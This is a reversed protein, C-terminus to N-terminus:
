SVRMGIAYPLKCIFLPLMHAHDQITASLAAIDAVDDSMIPWGDIVGITCRTNLRSTPINNLSGFNKEMLVKRTVGGNILPPTTITNGNFSITIYVILHRGELLFEEVSSARVLFTAISVQSRQAPGKSTVAVLDTVYSKM